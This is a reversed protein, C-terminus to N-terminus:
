LVEINKVRFARGSLMTVEGSGCDPCSLTDGLVSDVEFSAECGDCRFVGPVRDINVQAGEALTGESLHDFYRRVWQDQLDTLAGIELNVSLVKVAGASEAHRLVIRHIDRTTPLEHM